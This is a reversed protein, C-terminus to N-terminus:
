PKGMGRETLCGAGFYSIIIKVNPKRNILKSPIRASGMSGKSNVHQWYLQLQNIRAREHVGAYGPGGLHFWAMRCVVVGLGVSSHYLYQYHLQNIDPRYEMLLM